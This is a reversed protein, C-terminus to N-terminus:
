SILEHVSYIYPLEAVTSLMGSHSKHEKSLKVAYIASPHLDNENSTNEIDMDYVKIHHDKLFATFEEIDYLSKFEIYLTMNRLKRRVKSEWSAMVELVFIITFCVIIVLEYFGAGCALGMTASAFVGTATTLGNVQQHAIGIISGAALFGIGSIVSASFRSADFKLGIEAVVDAWTTSLMEFEYTSLLMTISAGVCILMFTRLGAACNRSSRGYGIVGGAFMALCMRLCVTLFSFEKLIGM